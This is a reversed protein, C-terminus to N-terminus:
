KPPFEILKRDTMAKIIPAAGLQTSVLNPNWKGDSGYKGRVYFLTGSWLYPTAVGHNRSGFGNWAELRYLVTPLSWDDAVLGRADWSQAKEWQLADEASQEWTWTDLPPRGVPFHVTKHDLPDGNHLHCNFRCDCEMLHMIGIVYWPVGSHNAVDVYRPKGDLIKAISANLAKVYNARLVQSNYLKIYENKLQPTLPVPREDGVKMVIAPRHHKPHHHVHHVVAPHATM